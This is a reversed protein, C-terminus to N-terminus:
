KNASIKPCFYDRTICSEFDSTIIVMVTKCKYCEVLSGDREYYPENIILKPNPKEIM